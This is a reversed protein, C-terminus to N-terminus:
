SINVVGRAIKEVPITFLFLLGLPLIALFDPLKREELIV